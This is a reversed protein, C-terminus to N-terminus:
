QEGEFRHRFARSGIIAVFVERMSDTMAAESLDAVTSNDQDFELRGLSFRLWQRAFCETAKPSGALARALQAGGVISLEPDLGPAGGSADIPEGNEETRHRGLGDFNELAFGPPDILTHCAACAPNDSHQAWRERTTLDPDPLPESTDVDEPPPPLHECLLHELVFVGRKVPSTGSFGGTAALVGATTLVGGGREDGLSVRQPETVGSLGYLFATRPDPWALDTSFFTDFTADENWIMEDIFRASEAVLGARVDDDFEPFADPSRNLDPLKDLDLWQEYFRRVAARGCPKDLLRRAHDQLVDVDTLTDAQAADWLQQDPPEECLAYSIRSALEWSTLAFAGAEGEVEQGVEVLYLFSPNALIGQLLMRLGSQFGSDNGSTFLGLLRRQEDNTLPRRFARPAFEDVLAEACAQRESAYTDLGPDIPGEITLGSYRVLLNNDDPTTDIRFMLSLTGPDEVAISTSVVQAGNVNNETSVVEGNFVIELSSVPANTDLTLAVNYQGPSAFNHSYAVEPDPAYTTTLVTPDEADTTFSWEPTGTLSSGNTTTLTQQVSPPLIEDSCASALADLQETALLTTAVEGAIAMYAEFHPRSITQGNVVRDFVYDSAEPPMRQLAEPQLGTLALISRRLEHASLRRTTTSPNSGSPPEATDSADEGGTEDASDGSGADTDTGGDGDTEEGGDNASGSDSGCGCGIPLVGLLLAVAESRFRFCTDRSVTPDDGQKQDRQM